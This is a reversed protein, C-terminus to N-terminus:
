IKERKAHPQAAHLRAHEVSVCACITLVRRLLQPSRTSLLVHQQMQGRTAHRLLGAIQRKAHPEAVSESTHLLRPCSASVQAPEAPQVSRTAANTWPNRPTPPESDPLASPMPSPQPSIHASPWEPSGAEDAKNSDKRAACCVSYLLAACEAQPQLVALRGRCCGDTDRPM